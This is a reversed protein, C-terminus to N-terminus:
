GPLDNLSRLQRSVLTLARSANPFVRISPLSKLQVEVTTNGFQLAPRLWELPLPHRDLAVASRLTPLVIRIVNRDGILQFYHGAVSVDLTGVLNLKPLRRSEADHHKIQREFDM